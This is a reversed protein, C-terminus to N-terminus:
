QQHRGTLAFTQETCFLSCTSAVSAKCVSSKDTYHANGLQILLQLIDAQVLELAEAVCEKIIFAEHTHDRLLTTFDLMCQSKDLLCHRLSLVFAIVVTCYETDKVDHCLPVMVVVHADFSIRTEFGGANTLM